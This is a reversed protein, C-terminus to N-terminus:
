YLAGEEEVGNCLHEPRLLYRLLAAVVSASLSNGLLAYRQRLTIHPPFCFSPPFSHLAAIEAPTFSRLRLQRLEALLQESTPAAPIPEDAPEDSDAPAQCSKEAAEQLAAWTETDATADHHILDRDGPMVGFGECRSLRRTLM